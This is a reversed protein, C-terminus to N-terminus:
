VAEGRAQTAPAAPTARISEEDSKGLPEVFYHMRRQLHTDMHYHMYAAPLLDLMTILECLTGELIPFPRRLVQRYVFFWRLKETCFRQANVRLATKGQIGTLDMNALLTRPFIVMQVIGRAFTLKRTVEEMPPHHPEREREKISTNKKRKGLFSFICHELM